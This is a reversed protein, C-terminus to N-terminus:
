AAIEEDTLEVLLTICELCIDSNQHDLIALLAEPLGSQVFLGVQEPLAAIV